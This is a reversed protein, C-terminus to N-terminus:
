GSEYRGGGKAYMREWGRRIERAVKNFRIGVYVGLGANLLDYMLESLLQLYAKRKLRGESDYLLIAELGQTKALKYM